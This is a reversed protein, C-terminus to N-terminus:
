EFLRKEITHKVFTFLQSYFQITYLSCYIRIQQPQLYVSLFVVFRLFHPKHFMETKYFITYTKM